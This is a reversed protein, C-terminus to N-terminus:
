NEEYLHELHFKYIDRMMRYVWHHDTHIQLFYVMFLTELSFFDLSAVEEFTLLSLTYTLDIIDIDDHVKDGELWTLLHAGFENLRSIYFVEYLNEVHTYLNWGFTGGYGMLDCMPELTHKNRDYQNIHTIHTM